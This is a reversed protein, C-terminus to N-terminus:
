ESVTYEIVDDNDDLLGEIEPPLPYEPVTYTAESDNESFEESEFCIEYGQPWQIPEADAAFTVVLTAM